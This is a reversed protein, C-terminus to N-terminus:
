GLRQEKAGGIRGGLLERIMELALEPQDMPVMHGSEAIKLYHLPPASKLWGRPGLPGTGPLGGSWIQRKAHKFDGVKSYPLAELAIENSVHNVIVDNMGNFFLLEVEGSELIEVVDPVVGLGDNGALANY